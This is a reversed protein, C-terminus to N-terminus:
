PGLLVLKRDRKGSVTNGGADLAYFYVGPLATSGDAKRRDWSLVNPGVTGHGVVTAIRRGSVSYVGLRVDQARDLTFRFVVRENAAAPNPQVGLLETAFLDAGGQPGDGVAVVPGKRLCTALGFGLALRVWQIRGTDSQSLASPPDTAKVHSRLHKLDFGDMLTRYPRGPEGYRHVSATWPPGPGLNEYQAAESASSVTPIVSLVDSAVPGFQNFGFIAGPLSWSAIPLFQANQAPNNSAKYNPATLDAGFENNLLSYLITGNDSYLAGDEMIGDGSLWAARPQAAPAQDLFMKIMDVDNSGEGVDFGDHLTADRLDGSSWVITNYFATLQAMSPGQRSGKLAIAGLNTALRTGLRGAQWHEAGSVDFQDYSLGYQGGNVAVFDAANNPHAHDSKSTRMWGQSSGDLKGYGCTDAAGRYSRNSGRRDCGDVLLMCALGLGHYRTSKWMDPLVDLHAFREADRDEFAGFDHPFVETTDYWLTYSSPDELFTSRVFYEIHTGPCFYGDPLIKTGEKTVGSVAGYSAPVTGDCVINTQNNPGSPNVLFCQNHTIGLTNIRPDLEHITAMWKFNFLTTPVGGIGRSVIPHLNIEASDMRCSNWVDPRWTSGHGGPTGFLGNNAMYSAWFPHAPDKEFLASTPDGRVVYNGPGPDIRFVLDLRVGTTIGDGWMPAIVVMSDGAVVGPDNLPVVINLASTMLATTTDFPFNDGPTIGENFTFTDQYKAWPQIGVPPGTGEGTHTQPPKAHACAFLTQAPDHLGISVNDFYSGRTNGLNTGGWCWGQSQTLLVARLSDIQGPQEGLTSLDDVMTQCIPLPNYYLFPQVLISSWQRHNSVPSVSAPGHFRLGANWFVSEDISMFGSYWDYEILINPRQAMEDTINQTNTSNPTSRVALDITPSEAAQYHEITLLESNDHDGAVLVNGDLSCLRTPSGVAGNLDEYLLTSISQTHFYASPPRGTTAWPGNVAAINGILSRATIDGAAEFGQVPGGDVQVNDIVAAGDKSNYGTALNTTEDSRVRNTKVRFVVRVRGGVTLIGAYPVAITTDAQVFPFKGGVSFVEQHPKSLDLVESFWRRNTDYATENPAGVYVMLTDAPNNVFNAISTPDPNFWGSGGVVPDVYTSMDTRVRFALTGTGTSSFDKYLMQDWLNSYGPFEARNQIGYEELQLDANLYNGTLVDIATTNGSERLGCWASSAGAIPASSPEAGDSLNAKVGAMTDRHWVGAVGSQIFKRGALTRATTLNSNGNNVNNGYDLAWEPRLTPPRTAGIRYPLAWRRWGQSTDTGAVDQDFKWSSSTSVGAITGSAHGVWAPNCGSEPRLLLQGALGQGPVLPLPLVLAPREDVVDDQAVAGRAFACLLVLVWSHLRLIRM